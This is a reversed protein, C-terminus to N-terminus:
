KIFMFFFFDHASQIFIYLINYCNHDRSQSETTKLTNPLIKYDEVEPM